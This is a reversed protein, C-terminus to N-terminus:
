FDFEEEDSDFSLRVVNNEDDSDKSIFKSAEELEIMVDGDTDDQLLGRKKKIQKRKRVVYGALIIILVMAVLVVGGSTSLSWILATNSNDDKHKKSESNNEGDYPETQISQVSYKSNYYNQNQENLSDWDIPVHAGSSCKSNGCKPYHLSTQNFSVSFSNNEHVMTNRFSLQFLTIFERLVTDYHYEEINICFYEYERNGFCYYGEATIDAIYEVYGNAVLLMDFDDCTNVWFSVCEFPYSIRTEPDEAYLCLTRTKQYFDIPSFAINTMDMSDIFSANWNSPEVVTRECPPYYYNNTECLSYQVNQCFEYPFDSSDTFAVCINIFQPTTVTVNTIEMCGFGCNEYDECLGTFNRTDQCSVQGEWNPLTFEYRSGVPLINTYTDHYFYGTLIVELQDRCDFYEFHLCFDLKDENQSDVACNGDM